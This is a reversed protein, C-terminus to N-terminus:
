PALPAPPAPAVNLFLSVVAADEGQLAHLANCMLYSPIAEIAGEM